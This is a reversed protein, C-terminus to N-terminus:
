KLKAEIAEIRKILEQNQKKLEKTQDKMLKTDKELLALNTDLEKIANIVAYFMDEMRIRLFGDEGKMVADPFIKRLDQAMVGVRPTKTKDDKFTYHFLKLKKLEKLGGIYNKGVNKLRRDSLNTPYSDYGTDGTTLGHYTYGGFVNGDYCWESFELPLSTSSNDGDVDVYTSAGVAINLIANKGVKITGPIFVSDNERGLVICKPKSATIINTHNLNAGTGIAVAKHQVSNDYNTNNYNVNANYGIAMSYDNYTKANNGLSITEFPDKESTPNKEAKAEKGIAIGYNSSSANSGISLAFPKNAKAGDGIAISNQASESEGIKTGSGIAISNKSNSISGMIATSNESSYISGMIATGKNGNCYGKIAISNEGQTTSRLAITNNSNANSNSGLAISNTSNTKTKYGIAISDSNNANADNGISLANAASTNANNGIALCNSSNAITDIGIAISTDNTEEQANINRGIAIANHNHTTVDNGIVISNNGTSNSNIGISIFNTNENDPFTTDSVWISNRLGIIFNIFKFPENNGVQLTIHPINGTSEIYFRPDFNINNNVISNGILATLNNNQLNYTINRGVNTWVWPSEESASEIMKRNIMPAAAAMVVSIIVLAIMMEMLSFGFKIKM